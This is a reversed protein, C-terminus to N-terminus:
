RHSGENIEGIVDDISVSIEHGSRSNLEQEMIKDKVM